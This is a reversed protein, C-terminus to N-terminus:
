PHPHPPSYSHTSETKEGKETHRGTQAFGPRKFTQRYKKKGRKEARMDERM